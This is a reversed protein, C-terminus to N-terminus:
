IKFNLAAYNGNLTHRLHVMSFSYGVGTLSSVRSMNSVSAM